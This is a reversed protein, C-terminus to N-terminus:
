GSRPSPKTGPVLQHPHQSAAPTGAPALVQREDRGLRDDAPMPLAPAQEPTPLGARATSPRMEPGLHLLEDDGHGALIREPASLPNSALQEFEADQDAIPRDSAVTPSSRPTWRALGPPGEQAVMSVM